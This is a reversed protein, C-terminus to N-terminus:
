VSEPGSLGIEPLRDSTTVVKLFVCLFYYGKTPMPAFQPPYIYPVANPPILGPPNAAFIPNQHGGPQHASAPGGPFGSASVGSFFHYISKM